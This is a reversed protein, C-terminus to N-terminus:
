CNWGMFISNYLEMVINFILVVIIPVWLINKKIENYSCGKYYDKPNPIPAPSIDVIIFCNIRLTFGKNYPYPLKRIINYWICYIDM